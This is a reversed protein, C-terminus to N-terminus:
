AASQKREPPGFAMEAVKIGAATMEDTVIDGYINFTTRIDAHRMMKQQVAMGTGVADLWLRYTHRFTHTGMHGLEAKTAAQNLVLCVYTYSYPLRGLKIPSAFVWHAPDVSIARQRLVKLRGLLEPTLQFTKASGSTKVEDARQNVMGRQITLKSGFWDVDGWQLGLAESIRLGLCISVLATTAFPEPLEKLLPISSRRQFAGPNLVKKMAEKNQVLSMPNRAIELLGAWMAFEILGHM